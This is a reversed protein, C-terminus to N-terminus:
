SWSYVAETFFSPIITKKISSAAMEKQMLPKLKQSLIARAGIIFKKRLM